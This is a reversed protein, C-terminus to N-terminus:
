WRYWRGRSGGASTGRAFFGILWVILVIVAIIWLLHLTFGFGGLLLVLLLVLLLPWM